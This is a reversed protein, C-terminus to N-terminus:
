FVIKIYVKLVMSFFGVRDDCLLNDKEQKIIFM